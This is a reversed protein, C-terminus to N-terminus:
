PVPAAGRAGTGEATIILASAGTGRWVQRRLASHTRNRTRTRFIAQGSAALAAALAQLPEMVKDDDRVQLTVCPGTATM